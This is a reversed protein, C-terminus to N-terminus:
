LTTDPGSETDALKAEKATTGEKIRFHRKYLQILDARPIPWNQRKPRLGRRLENSEVKRRKSRNSSDKILKESNVVARKRSRSVEEKLDTPVTKMTSVEEKLDTPVTKM